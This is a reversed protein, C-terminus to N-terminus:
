HKFCQQTLAVQPQLTQHAMVAAATAAVAAVVAAAAVVAEELPLPQLTEEM